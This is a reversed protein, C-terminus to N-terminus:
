SGLPAPRPAPVIRAIPRSVRRLPVVVPIGGRPGVLTIGPAQPTRNLSPRTSALALTLVAAVFAALLLLTWTLRATRPGSTPTLKAAATAM